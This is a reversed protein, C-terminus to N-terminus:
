CTTSESWGEDMIIYEVKNAAAFDIYYKYTETNIGAKFDVKSINWDNWWDWAVKGPKIWSLDKIESPSALKQIMDNNALEKDSESIVVARWPFNCTGATKAIYDARKAVMYNMNNFGGTREELPYHAFVGKFSHQNKPNITLFMGPYDLLDAELIVAKKGDELEVLLPSFALTDKAFQSIKIEEYLAEFSSTYLDKERLDRVYPVFAKYDKNFNYSADETKITLEGKRRTFFRYAAGDNYARVVLGYNGKFNVILENYQDLVTNKKYLSQSFSANVSKVSSSVIRVNQGLVEGGALTLAIKSPLIVSTNAHKVSWTLEKGAQIEMDIKGSPSKVHFVKVSQAYASTTIFILVLTSLKM